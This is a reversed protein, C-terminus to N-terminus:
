KLVFCIQFKLKLNFLVSINHIDLGDQLLWRKNEAVHIVDRESLEHFRQRLVHFLRLVAATLRAVIDRKCGQQLRVRWLLGRRRFIRFFEQVVQLLAVVRSESFHPPGILGGGRGLRGGRRRSLASSIPVGEGRLSLKELDSDLNLWCITFRM